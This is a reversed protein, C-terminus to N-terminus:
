RWFKLATLWLIELSSYSVIIKFILLVKNIMLVKIINYIQLTIHQCLFSLIPQKQWLKRSWKRWFQASQLVKVDEETKPKLVNAGNLHYVTCAKVLSRQILNSALKSTELLGFSPFSGYFFVNIHANNKRTHQRLCMDTEVKRDWGKLYGWVSTKKWGTVWKWIWTSTIFLHDRFCGGSNSLYKSQHLVQSTVPLSNSTSVKWIVGYTWPLLIPM